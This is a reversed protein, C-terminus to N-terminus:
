AAEESDITQAEHDATIQAVKADHIAREVRDDELCAGCKDHGPFALDGCGCLDGLSTV